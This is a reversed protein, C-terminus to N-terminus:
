GGKVRLGNAMLYHRYNQEDRAWFDPDDATREIHAYWSDLDLLYVSPSPQVIRVFGAVGLRRITHLQGAFGLLEGVTATLKVFRGCDVGLRLGLSGDARRFVEAMVYEPTAGDRCAYRGPAVEVLKGSVLRGNESM